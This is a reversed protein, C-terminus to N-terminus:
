LFHEWDPYFRGQQFNKSKFQIESYTPARPMNRLKMGVRPLDEPLMDSKKFNCQHCACVSNGIIRVNNHSNM